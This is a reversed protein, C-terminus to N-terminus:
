DVRNIIKNFERKKPSLSGKNMRDLMSSNSKKIQNKIKLMIKDMTQGRSKMYDIYVQPVYGHRMYEHAAFATFNAMTASSNSEMKTLIYVEKLKRAESVTTTSLLLRKLWDDLDREYKGRDKQNMDIVMVTQKNDDFLDRFKYFPRGQHVNTYYLEILGHLSNPAASKAVKLAEKAFSSPSTLPNAMGM